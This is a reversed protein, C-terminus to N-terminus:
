EIRTLIENLYKPDYCQRVENGGDVENVYRNPLPVKWDTQMRFWEYEVDLHGLDIAQLGAQSLDYAMVTAAMGLSLLILSDKMAYSKVAAIIEDYKTYANEAPCIIRKISAAEYFLDNGVGSITYRGEVIIVDRAKWIKKLLALHDACHSRDKNDIYFRSIETDFYQKKFDIVQRLQQANMGIYYAWFKNSSFRLHSSHLFPYPLCVIHNPLNSGLVERLRVALQPDYQQFGRCGGFIVDLEGDGYRSVSSHHDIIYQVTEMAGKIKLNRFMVKRIYPIRVHEYYCARVTKCMESM